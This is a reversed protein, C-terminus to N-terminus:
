EDRDRRQTRASNGTYKSKGPLKSEAEKTWQLKVYEIEVFSEWENDDDVVAFEVHPHTSTSIWSIRKGLTLTPPTMPQRLWM